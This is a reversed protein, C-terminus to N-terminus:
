VWTVFTLLEQEVEIPIRKDFGISFEPLINESVKLEVTQAKKWVCNETVPIVEKDFEPKGVSNYRLYCCFDVSLLILGPIREGPRFLNVSQKSILFLFVEM